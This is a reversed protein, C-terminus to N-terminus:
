SEPSRIISFVEPTDGKDGAQNDYGPRIDQKKPKGKPGPKSYLKM